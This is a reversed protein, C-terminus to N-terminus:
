GLPPAALARVPEQRPALRWQISSSEESFEM